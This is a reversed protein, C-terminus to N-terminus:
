QSGTEVQWNAPPRIEFELREHTTPHDFALRVCCLAIAPEDFTAQAEYKRDGLIPCGINALQLRIQHKRGTFLQVEVLWGRRQKDIVHYALRAQQALPTHPSVITMRQERDNKRLWHTLEGTGPSPPREVLAWYRKEVSGAQLQKMLRDAAKSTRALVLLGCAAQDLRSVVGLYVNGPKHYKDKLYQKAQIVVSPTGAAAGQTILGPPKNVVLLHNDEHVIAITPPKPM